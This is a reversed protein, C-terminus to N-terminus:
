KKWRVVVEELNVEWERGLLAKWYDYHEQFREPDLAIGVEVAFLVQFLWKPVDKIRVSAFVERKRLLYNELEDLFSDSFNKEKWCKIIEEFTLIQRM